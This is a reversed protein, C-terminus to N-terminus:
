TQQTTPKCYTDQNDAVKIMSAKECVKGARILICGCACRCFCLLCCMMLDSVIGLALCRLSCHTWNWSWQLRRSTYVCSCLSIPFTVHNMDRSLKGCWGIASRIKEGTLQNKRVEWRWIEPAWVIEGTTSMRMLFTHVKGWRCHNARVFNTM